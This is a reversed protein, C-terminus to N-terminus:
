CVGSDDGGFISLIPDIKKANNQNILIGMKARAQPSLSLENCFRFYMTLYDKRTLSIDRDYLLDPEEEIRKDIKQLRDFNVAASTLIFSDLEGIIGADTFYKKLRNFIKKQDKSIKWTPRIDSTNGKLLNETEQRQQQESKTLHGSQQSVTKAPRAM